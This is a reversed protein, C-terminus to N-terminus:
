SKFIIRVSGFDISKNTYLTAKGDYVHKCNMNFGNERLFLATIIDSCCQRRASRLGADNQKTLEVEKGKNGQPKKGSPNQKPPRIKVIKVDYRYAKLGPKISLKFITCVGKVTRDYDQINMLSLQGSLAM